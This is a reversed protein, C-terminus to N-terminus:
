DSVAIADAIWLKVNVLWPWNPIPILLIAVGIKYRLITTNLSIKKLALAIHGVLVTLTKM